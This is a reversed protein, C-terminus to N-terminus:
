FRFLTVGDSIHLLFPYIVYQYVIKHAYRVNLKLRLEEVCGGDLRQRSEDKRLVTRGIQPLMLM